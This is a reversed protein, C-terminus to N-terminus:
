AATISVHHLVQYLKAAVYVRQVVHATLVEMVCRKIAQEAASSRSQKASQM